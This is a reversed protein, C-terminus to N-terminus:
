EYRLAVMPDIRTAKARRYGAPEAGVCDATILNRRVDPIPKVLDERTALQARADTRLQQLAQGLRDCATQTGAVVGPAACEPPRGWPWGYGIEQTAASRTPMVAYIGVSSLALAILAFIAFYRASCV